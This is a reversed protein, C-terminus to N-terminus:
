IGLTLFWLCGGVSVILISLLILVVRLAEFNLEYTKPPPTTILRELAGGSALDLRVRLEELSELSDDKLLEAILDLSVFNQKKMQQLGKIKQHKIIENGTSHEQITSPRQFM